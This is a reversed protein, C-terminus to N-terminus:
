FLYFKFGHFKKFSKAIFYSTKIKIGGQSPLALASLSLTSFARLFTDGLALTEAIWAPNSHPMM